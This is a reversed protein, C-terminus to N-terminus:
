TGGRNENFIKEVKNAWNEWDKVLSEYYNMDKLLDQITTPAPLEEREPKPPLIITGKPTSVCGSIIILLLILLLRSLKKM